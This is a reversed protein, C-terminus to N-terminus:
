AFHGFNGSELAKLAADLGEAGVEYTHEVGLEDTYGITNPQVCSDDEAGTSVERRTTTGNRWNGAKFNVRTSSAGFCTAIDGGGGGGNSRDCVANPYLSGTWFNGTLGIFKVGYGYTSGGWACCAGAAINNCCTFTGGCTQTSYACTNVALAPAALFASTVIAATLKM